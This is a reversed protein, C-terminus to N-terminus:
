KGQNKDVLAMIVYKILTEFMNELIESFKEPM